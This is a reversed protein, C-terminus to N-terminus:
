KGVVVPGVCAATTATSSGATVQVKFWRRAGAGSHIYTLQCTGTCGTNIPGPTPLAASACGSDTFPHINYVGSPAGPSQSIALVAGNSSGAASTITPAAVVVHCWPTLLSAPMGLLLAFCLPVHM